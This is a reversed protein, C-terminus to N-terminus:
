AESKVEALLVEIGRRLEEITEPTRPAERGRRQQRLKFALEACLQLLKQTRLWAAPGGRRLARWGARSRGGARPLDRYLSDPVKGARAATLVRRQRRLSWLAVAIMAGLGALAVAVTILNLGLMRQSVWNHLAHVAAAGALAAVPVAWRRSRKPHLRGWGLGAGFVASYLAHNLRNLLGEAFVTANLGTPGWVAFSGVYSILNGTMAFGFGTMAGYLIGDLVNDFEDRCRWYVLMVAAAKLIEQLLPAVIGLRLAELAESGILQPPLEFFLEVVLATILAPIAGWLFAAALLRKPEKEYRDSWYLLGALVLAPVVAGLVAVLLGAAVEDAALSGGIWVLDRADWTAPVTETESPELVLDGGGDGAGGLILTATGGATFRVAAQADTSFPVARFWSQAVAGEEPLPWVALVDCNASTSVRLVALVDTQTPPDTHLIAVPGLEEATAMASAVTDRLLVQSDSCASGILEVRLRHDYWVDTDLPQSIAWGYPMEWQAGKDAPGLPGGFDSQVAAEGWQGRFALWLAESRVDAEAEIDERDPIMVVDPVLRHHSGTRDMIEVRISGVETGNPYGEDGVFYNAHSGLAVYVVPHTGDEVPASAWSRRTGGHHQSLVVWQPEGGADLVVEVLEWDGEHKNFWDNYYYLMWYQITIHDADEDRVVHAYVTAPPGGAEPSLVGEYFSRHASYNAYASSGNDGYWIDLFYSPDSDVDALDLADLSLLVNVDFWLKRSQRLRAQEIIVEAPQPRFLEDAHFYLVPAYRAALTADGDGTAAAQQMLPGGWLLLSAVAFGCTLIRSRM